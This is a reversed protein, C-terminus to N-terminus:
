LGELHSSGGLQDMQRLIWRVRENVYASPEVASMRKPNPLVAALLAAQRATLDAAPKGFFENAAAETGFVGPGFEAINLYVELIRRKPWMVEIFVTLYAELGKRIWSHGPWLFLNKAVQQSLTSAGRQRQRDEEMATRISEVDFGHHSPFNQNEAAVVAIPLHPSIEQWDVWKQQVDFGGAKAQSIFSSTPPDLWRWPLVVVTPAVLLILAASGVLWLIWRRRKPWQTRSM